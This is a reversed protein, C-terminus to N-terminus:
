GTRVLRAGGNIIGRVSGTATQLAFVAGGGAALSMRGSALLWLLAAWVAISAVGGAVAGAIGM